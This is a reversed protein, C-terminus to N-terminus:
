LKVIKLIDVMLGIIKLNSHNPSYSNDYLIPMVMAVYIITALVGQIFDIRETTALHFKKMSCYQQKKNSGLVM